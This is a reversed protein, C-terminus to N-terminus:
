PSNSNVRVARCLAACPPVSVEGLGDGNELTRRAQDYARQSQFCQSIEKYKESIESFDSTLLPKALRRIVAACENMVAQAKTGAQIANESVM